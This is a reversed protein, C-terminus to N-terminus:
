RTRGPGTRPANDSSFYDIFPTSTVEEGRWSIVGFFPIELLPIEPVLSLRSSVHELPPSM